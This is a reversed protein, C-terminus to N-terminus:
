KFLEEIDTIISQNDSKDNTTAPVKDTQSDQNVSNADATNDQDNATISSSTDNVVQNSQTLAAMNNNKEKIPTNIQFVFEEFQQLVKMDNKTIQVIKGGKNGILDGEKVLFQEGMIEVIALNNSNIQYNSIAKQNTKLEVSAPNVFIPIKVYQDGNFVTDPKVGNVKAIELETRDFKDAVEKVTEIRKTKYYYLPLLIKQNIMLQHDSKLGNFGVLDRIEIEYLDAIMELTQNKQVIHVRAPLTLRTGIVLKSGPLIANAIKLEEVSYGFREAIFELTDTPNTVYTTPINGYDIKGFNNNRKFALSEKENKSSLATGKLIYNQLNYYIIPSPALINGIPELQKVPLTPTVPTLNNGTASNANMIEETNKQTSNDAAQTENNNKTVSPKSNNQESSPTSSINANPSGLNNTFPDMAAFSYTITFFLIIIINLFFRM